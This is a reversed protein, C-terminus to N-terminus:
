KPFPSGVGFPTAAKPWTASRLVRGAERVMGYEVPRHNMGGTNYSAQGIGWITRAQDLTM